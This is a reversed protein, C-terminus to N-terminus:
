EWGASLVAVNNTGTAVVAYIEERSALVVTIAANAALKFGYVSTSVDPGGLFVDASGVNQLSFAQDRGAVVNSAVVGRTTGVSVVSGKVSM